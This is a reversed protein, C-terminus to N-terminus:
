ETVTITHILKPSLAGRKDEAQFEFRYNGTANQSTIQITLSFRADGAVADGQQGDDRMLFPNGSSPNGNPLFTNFFVRKLDTYCNPDDARVSLLYTNPTRSRSIESPARLDSLVPPLNLGHRTVNTTTVMGPSEAGAADLARFVISFLGTGCLKTTSIARAFVGDGAAGDEHKGDDFLSDTLTPRPFAPPFFEIRVFRLSSVGDADTATARFIPAYISDGAITAPVLISLVQPSLNERGPLIKITDRAAESQLGSQDRAVAELIFDGTQSHVLATDIPLFYQGDGPLIDGGRGDDRMAFSAVQTLNTRLVALRVGALTKVGQPDDVRVHIGVPTAPFQYVQDPAQIM